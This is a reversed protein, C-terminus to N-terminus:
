PSDSTKKIEKAANSKMLNEFEENIFETPSKLYRISPKLRIRHALVSIVAEKLDELEVQKKNKILANSQSREYLGISARVSPKKELDPSERLLRVFYTMLHLLKQARLAYCRSYDDNGCSNIKLSESSSTCVNPTLKSNWLICLYQQMKPSQRRFLVNM